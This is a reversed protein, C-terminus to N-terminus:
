RTRAKVLLGIGLVGLPISFWLLRQYALTDPTVMPVTLGQVPVVVNVVYHLLVAPWLSGGRLVLAGWWVALFCGETILLLTASLSVGMFISVIHPIAFLVATLVASGIAGMRTHGWASFLVYLVVGRFLIEEYLVAFIQTLVVTRTDPLRLASSVDFTVKGYFAYLGACTFYILGIVALLWVQWHGLRTIGSTELGGLHWILWLLGATLVLRMITIAVDGYLKPLQSYAIGTVALLLVFCVFTLGLVFIVPQNKAFTRLTNM